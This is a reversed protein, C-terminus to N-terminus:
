HDFFSPFIGAISAILGFFLVFFGILVIWMFIQQLIPFKDNNEKM